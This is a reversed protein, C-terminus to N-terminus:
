WALKTLSSYLCAGFGLFDHVMSDRRSRGGCRRRRERHTKSSCAACPRLSPFSQGVQSRPGWAVKKLKRCVSLRVFSSMMISTQAAPVSFRIQQHESGGVGKGRHLLRPTASTQKRWWWPEDSAIRMRSILSVQKNPDGRKWTRNGEPQRRGRDVVVHQVADAAGHSASVKRLNHKWRPM